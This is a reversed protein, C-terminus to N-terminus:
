DDAVIGLVKLDKQSLNIIGVKYANEACERCLREWKMGHYSISSSPDYDSNVIIRTDTEGCEPCSNKM